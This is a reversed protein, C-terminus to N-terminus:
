TAAPLIKPRRGLANVDWCNNKLSFIAAIRVKKNNNYTEQVIIHKLVMIRLYAADIRRSIVVGNNLITAAHVIAQKITESKIRVETLAAVGTILPTAVEFKVVDPAVTFQVVSM